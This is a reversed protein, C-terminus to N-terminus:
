AANIRAYLANVNLSPKSSHAARPAGQTTALATDTHANDAAAARQNILTARVDALNTRRAIFSGAQDAAKAYACLDRIEWAERIAAQADAVTTIRPDLLLDAVHPTLGHATALANVQAAFTEPTDPTVEDAPEDAAEAEAQPEPAAPDADPPAEPALARLAVDEPMGAACALAVMACAHARAPALEILIDAFGAQVAERGTMWTDQRIAAALARRDKGTKKEYTEIIAANFARQAGPAEVPQGDADTFHVGHVMMAANAHIHIEDAAMAIITAASAALGEIVAVKHASHQSLANHMALAQALDGGRSTIRLTIDRVTDPLSNLEAQLAELTKGAGEAGIDGRIHLTAQTNDTNLVM